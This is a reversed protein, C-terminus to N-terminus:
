RSPRRRPWLLVLVMGAALLAMWLQPSVPQEAPEPPAPTLALPKGARVWATYLLEAVHGSAERMAAAEPSGRAELEQKFAAYYPKARESEPNDLDDTHQAPNYNTKTRAATEAELIPKQRAYAAILWDFLRGTPDEVLPLDYRDKRIEARYYSDLYRHVLGIELAKHLGSNGTLQGDYNKTSHFPMHVDAAYHALDGAARFVDDTRGGTMADALADLAGAAAWPASGHQTFAEPGFQKEAAARDRPFKAFPYAEDTIADIDLFHKPKEDPLYPPSGRKSRLDPAAASEQLRKLRGEDSLLGRLPEPLREVAEQAILAHTRDSWGLAPSALLVALIAAVLASRWAAPIGVARTPSGHRGHDSPVGDRNRM